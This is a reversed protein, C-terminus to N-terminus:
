SILPPMEDDDTDSDTGHSSDSEERRIMLPPGDSDHDSYSHYSDEDSSSSDHDMRRMLGPPGSSTSSWDSGDDEMEEDSSDSSDLRNILEPLEGSTDSDSHGDEEMLSDEDSSDSYFAGRILAPPGNSSSSDSHTGDLLPPMDDMSDSDSDSDSFASNPILVERDSGSGTMSVRLMMMAHFLDYEFDLDSDYDYDDGFPFLGFPGRRRFMNRARERRREQEREEDLERKSKDQSKIDVGQANHHAYFCDKGFPCSGLTGNFRKCPLGALKQKYAFEIQQKHGISEPFTLSPIVYDSHKRCIPCCRRNATATASPATIAPSRATRWNMLCENCFVHDCGALLGFRKESKKIDEFCIGCSYDKEKPEKKLEMTSSSDSKLKQGQDEATSTAEMCVASSSGGTSLLDHSFM